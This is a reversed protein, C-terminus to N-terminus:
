VSLTTLMDPVRILTTHTDTFHSVCGILIAIIFSNNIQDPNRFTQSKSYMGEKELELGETM